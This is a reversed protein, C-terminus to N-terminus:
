VWTWGVFDQNGVYDGLNGGGRGWWGQSSWVKSNSLDKAVAAKKGVEGEGKKRM